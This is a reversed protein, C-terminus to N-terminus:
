VVKLMVRKNVFGFLQFFPWKPPTKPSSGSPLNLHDKKLKMYHDRLNRYKTACTKEDFSHDGILTIMEKSVDKWNNTKINKNM